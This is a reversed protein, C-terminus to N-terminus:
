ESYLDFLNESLIKQFEIGLDEQNKILNEFFSYIIEDDQKEM